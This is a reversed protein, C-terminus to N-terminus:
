FLFVLHLGQSSHQFSSRMPGQQQQVSFQSSQQQMMLQRWEVNGTNHSQPGTVIQDLPPQQRSAAPYMGRLGGPGPGMGMQQQQNPIQQQQQMMYM